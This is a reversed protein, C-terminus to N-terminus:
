EAQEYVNEEIKFKEMDFAEKIRLQELYFADNHRIHDSCQAQFGYLFLVVVITCSIITISEISNSM